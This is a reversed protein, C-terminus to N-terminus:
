QVLSVYTEGFHIDLDPAMARLSKRQARMGAAAAEARSKSGYPGACIVWMQGATRRISAYRGSWLALTPWGRDHAVKAAEAAKRRDGTACYFAGYFPTHLRAGM